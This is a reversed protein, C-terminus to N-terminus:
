SDQWLKEAKTTKDWSDEGKQWTKSMMDKSEQAPRGKRGGIWVSMVQIDQGLRGIWALRGCSDQRM